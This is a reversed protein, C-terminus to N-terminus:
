NRDHIACCHLNISTDFTGVIGQRNKLAGIQLLTPDATPDYYMPRLLGLMVDSDQEISGSDRADSMQPMKNDRSEISRNLQSLIIIDVGLEVATVKFMRTANGIENVRNGHGSYRLLGLHDVIAVATEPFRRKYVRLKHCIADATLNYGGMFISVNDEISKYNTEVLREQIDPPISHNRLMDYTLSGGISFGRKRCLEYDYAAIMRMAIQESQMELSWFPVKFGMLGIRMAINIALQTKGQGPRAMITILKGKELSDKGSFGGGLIYDLVKLGTSIVSQEPRPKLVHDRVSDFLGQKRLDKEHTASWAEAANSILRDIHAGKDTPPPLVNVAEHLENLQKILQPRRLKNRWLPIINEIYDDLNFDYTAESCSRAIERTWGRQDALEEAKDFVAQLKVISNKVGIEPSVSLLGAFLFRRKNDTFWDEDVGSDLLRFLKDPQRGIPGFFELCAGIFQMEEPSSDWSVSHLIENVQM